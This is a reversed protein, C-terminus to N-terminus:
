GCRRESHYRRVRQWWVGGCRRTSHDKEGVAVLSWMSYWTRVSLKESGSGGIEVWLTTNLSVQEGAEVLSRMGRELRCTKVGAVVLRWGCRRTQTVDKKGSGSFGGGFEIWLTKRLNQTVDSWGSGDIEVYWTGFFLRGNGSGGIEVSLWLTMKLTM